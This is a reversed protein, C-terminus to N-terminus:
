NQVVKVKNDDLTMGLQESALDLIRDPASLEVVQLSLGENQQTQQQIVAELQYVEQNTSYISAYNNVVAGLVLFTVVAMMIVIAKEGRTVQVPIRRVRKKTEVQRQQQEQIKHAVMSM